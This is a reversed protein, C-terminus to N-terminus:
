LCCAILGHFGRQDIVRGNYDQFAKTASEAKRFSIIAQNRFRGSRDYILAVSAVAGVQDTFLEQSNYYSLLLCFFLVTDSSPLWIFCARLPPSFSFRVRLQQDTVDEPLNSMIIQTGIVGGYSPSVIGGSQAAIAAATTAGVAAQQQRPQRAGGAQQQQQKRPAPKRAQKKTSIIDDLSQDVAMSQSLLACAPVVVVRARTVVVVSLTPM